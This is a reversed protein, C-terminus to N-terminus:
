FFLAQSHAGSSATYTLVIFGPQGAGGGTFNTSGGGGAGYLGAAAGNNGGTNGGKGGGGPGGHAGGITQTYQAGNAGSATNGADGTGGNGGTSGSGNSGVAGAGHPGPAGGGGGAPNPPSGLLALGGLAGGRVVDGVMGSTSTSQSNAAVTASSVFWCQSASGGAPIQVSVISNPTLSLTNKKAYGGSTGGNGGVSVPNCPCSCCSGIGQGNDGAGFLEITAASCDSPITFQTGSTIFIVKTTM